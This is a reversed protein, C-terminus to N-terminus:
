KKTGKKPKKKPKKVTKRGGMNCEKKILIL